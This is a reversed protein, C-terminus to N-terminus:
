HTNQSIKDAEDQYKNIFNSLYNIEEKISIPKTDIRLPPSVVIQIRGFPKPLMFSDWSKIKWYKTASGTISIIQANKEIALSTSGAKAIRPPGKPGDNTVAVLGGKDFVKKM